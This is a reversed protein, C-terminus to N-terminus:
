STPRRAASGSRRRAPRPPRRRTSRIRLDLGPAVMAQVVVDDADDGLADRMADVAEVVDHGDALDLAVGARVSRGLHRHEAKVAVPYGIRTPSARRRRRGPRQRTEPAVVGYAGCCPSSTTSTSRGRRRARRAAAIVAHAGRGTSTASTASRRRRGRRRALRRVPPARGLVGAAPEPFAFAPLTSGPRLPGDRRGDARHRDAEHRRRRGGRDGGVPADVADALPPAHVIMVRTSTTTPSPPACRPATTTRRRAGTSRSPATSRGGARRHAPRGRSLTAPSRANALLAVRPGRMVPQTALVRATDLMAAVTPVEILGAQQYLAGGSPGIAAAGTRVAVIPRRVRCAGPSAPSSARTASRSPTCPSSGRRRTTRGSSCCTTARCTARTASRSSGRCAWTCTTPWACCAVRRAVRVAALDGRRRAAPRGARAAGRVGVSERPSAVGMSGPGILRVGFSRARAVLPTSTSTPARSRRSSSPAACARRSATRSSPRCAGARARRRRGPQRRRPRGAPAAVLAPRRGRRPAPNVPFVAGTPPPPSTAGCPTASRARSTAPASSPSRAPCCSGPWRGALRRAARAARRLRPVGRHRRALLRPRRRRERLAARGAVRRPQVRRADPPQRRAGRGHLPRHRQRPRDGRPARAPAHRHGQGPPRRRGPVRRRRRRPRGLARLQGLRHVRRLARRRPRRPRRLRRDTFHALDADTLHPKPSFYRRYISEPSQRDHFAALAPADDPRIPRVLATEGDGLVVTSSWRQGAPDATAIDAVAAAMPRAIIGRREGLRRRSRRGTDGGRRTRSTRSSSRSSADRAPRPRRRGAGSTRAAPPLPVAVRLAPEEAPPSTALSTASRPWSPEPGLASSSPSRPTTTRQWARHVHRVPADVVVREDPCTVGHRELLPGALWHTAATRGRLLAPRPSSPRAPRAPSCGRRARVAVIWAASRPTATAASGARCSSSDVAPSTAFTADVVQAGGPGAVVGIREGVTVLDSARPGPRARDPLRPERRRARGPLRRHRGHREM